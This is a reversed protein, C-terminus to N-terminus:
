PGEVLPLLTSDSLRRRRWGGHLHLSANAIDSGSNRRGSSRWGRRATPRCGRRCGGRPQWYTWRMTELDIFGDAARHQVAQFSGIPVGVFQVREKTYPRHRPRRSRLRRGADRGTGDARAARALPSPGRRGRGYRRPPGVGGGRRHPARRLAAPRDLDGAGDDYVGATLPDVLFVAVGDDTTAPILMVDARQAFPVFRKVGDLIVADGERSGCTAPARRRGLRRRAARDHRPRRGRCHAAAM